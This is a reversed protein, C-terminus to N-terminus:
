KLYIGKFPQILCTDNKTLKYFGITNEVVKSLDLSIPKRAILNIMHKKSQLIYSSLTAYIDIQAAAKDYFIMSYFEPTIIKGNNIYYKVTDIHNNIDKFILLSDSLLTIEATYDTMYEFVEGVEESNNEIYDKFSGFPPIAQYQGGDKILYLNPEEAQFKKFKFKLPFNPNDEDSNCSVISFGMTILIALTFYKM